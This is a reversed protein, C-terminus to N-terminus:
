GSALARSPSPTPTPPVLPPPLHPERGAHQFRRARPAAGCGGRGVAPRPAIRRRPDRHEDAPAPPRAGDPGRTGQTADRPPPQRTPDPRASRRARIARRLGAGGIEKEESQKVRDLASRDMVAAARIPYRSLLCLDRSVHRHWGAIRQVAAVLPEGCEQFAVIQPQWRALFTPLIQALVAGGGANYTVVRVPHGSPDPLLRRWGTRFGMVPGIVIMAGVALPLLLRARLWAVLPVLVLLPLLFVWRGM